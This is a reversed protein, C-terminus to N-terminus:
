TLQHARYFACLSNLTAVVAVGLVVDILFLNDKVESNLELALGVEVSLMSQLTLKSLSIEFFSTASSYPLSCIYRQQKM